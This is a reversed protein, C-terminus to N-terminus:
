RVQDYDRSRALEDCDVHRHRCRELDADIEAQAQRALWWIWLAAAVMGCGLGELTWRMFVSLTVM